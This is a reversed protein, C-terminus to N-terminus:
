QGLKSDLQQLLEVTRNFSTPETNTCADKFRANVSYSELLAALPYVESSYSTNDEALAQVTRSLVYVQGLINTKDACSHNGSVSVAAEKVLLTEAKLWAPAKAAALFGTFFISSFIIFFKM